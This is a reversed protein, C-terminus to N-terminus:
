VSAQVWSWWAMSRAPSGLLALAAHRASTRSPVELLVALVGVEDVVQADVVRRQHREPLLPLVGAVLPAHGDVQVGADAAVGAHDGALGLVVDRDHALVLHRAAALHVPDADVAVELALRVIGVHAGWGTAQTCHSIAGQSCTQGTAAVTCM